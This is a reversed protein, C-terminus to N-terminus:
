EVIIGKNTITVEKEKDGKFWSNGWYGEVVFPIPNMWDGVIEDVKVIMNEQALELVQDVEKPHVDILVSDHVQSFIYSKTNKAVMTEDMMIMGYLTTYRGSNSILYDGAQRLARFKTNREMSTANPLHRVRGFPSVVYGHQEAFHHQREIQEEIEPYKLLWNKIYGKAVDVPVNLKFALSKAGIEFIISFNTQKGCDRATSFEDPRNKKMLQFADEEMRLVIDRTVASHLDVGGMYADIFGDCQALNGIIRLHLQSHDLEMIKGGKFRSKFVRRIRDKVVNQLPPNSSSLQGTLLKTLSYDSSIHDYGADIAQDCYTILSDHVAKKQNLEILKDLFEIREPESEMDKVLKLADAGASPTVGNDWGKKYQSKHVWKDDTTMMIPYGLHGYLLKQKDKANGVKFKDMHESAVCAIDFKLEDMRDIYHKKEIAFQEKSLPSGREELRALCMQGRLLWKGVDAMDGDSKAIRPRLKDNALRTVVVDKGCYNTILKVPAEHHKRQGSKDLKRIGEVPHLFEEMPLDYGYANVQGAIFDLGKMRDEYLLAYTVQVDEAMNGTGGAKMLLWKAEYKANCAELRVGSKVVYEMAEQCDGYLVYCPTNLDGNWVGMVIVEGDRPDLSTTEFDLTLLLGGVVCSEIYAIMQSTTCQVIKVPCKFLNLGLVSKIAMTIGRKFHDHTQEYQKLFKPLLASVRCLTHGNVQIPREIPLKKLKPHAGVMISDRQIKTWDKTPSAIEVKYDNTSVGFKKMMAKIYQMEAMMGYHSLYVRINQEAM